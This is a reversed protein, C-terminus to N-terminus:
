KGRAQRIYQSGCPLGPKVKVAECLPRESVGHLSVESVHRAKAAKNWLGERREKVRFGSGHTEFQWTRSNKQSQFM